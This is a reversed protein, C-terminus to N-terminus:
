PRQPVKATCLSFLLGLPIVEPVNECLRLLVLSFGQRLLSLWLSAKLHKESSPLRFLHLTDYIARSLPSVKMWSFHPSSLSFHVCFYENSLFLFSKHLASVLSKCLTRSRRTWPSASRRRRRRGTSAETVKDQGLSLVLVTVASKCRIASMATCQCFAFGCSSEPCPPLIYHSFIRKQKCSVM